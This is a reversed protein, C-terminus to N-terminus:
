SEKTPAKRIGLENRELIENKYVERIQQSASFATATATTSQYLLAAAMLVIGLLFFPSHYAAEGAPVFIWILNLFLFYFWFYYPEPRSYSVGRLYLDALSTTLYLVDGYLHGLSVIAQVPHRYPSSRLILVATLYSLPGWVM